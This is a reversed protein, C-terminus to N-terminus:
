LPCLSRMGIINPGRKQCGEGKSITSMGWSFGQNITVKLKTLIAARM